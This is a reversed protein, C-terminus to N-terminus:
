RKLMVWGEKGKGHEYSNEVPWRISIYHRWPGIGGVSVRLGSVAALRYAYRMRPDRCANTKKMM